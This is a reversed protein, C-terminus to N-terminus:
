DPERLRPHELPEVAECPQYTCPPEDQAQPCCEALRGRVAQLKDVAIAAAPFAVETLEATREAAQTTRRELELEIQGYNVLVCTNKSVFETACLVSGLQKSMIVLATNTYDARDVLAQLGDRMGNDIRELAASVNGVDARLGGVEGVLAEVGALIGGLHENITTVANYFDDLTPM